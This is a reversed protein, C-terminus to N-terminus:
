RLVEALVTSLIESPSRDRTWIGLTITCMLCGCGSKGRVANVSGLAALSGLGVRRDVVEALMVRLFVIRDRDNM